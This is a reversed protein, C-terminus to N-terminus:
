DCQSAQCYLRSRVLALAIPPVLMVASVKYTEICRCFLGLEFKPIVVVTQGELVPWHLVKTLAYIHSCKKMLKTNNSPFDPFTYVLRLPLVAMQISDKTIDIPWESSLVSTM